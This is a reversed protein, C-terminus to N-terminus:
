AVGVRQGRERALQIPRGSRGPTLNRAETPALRYGVGRICVVELGCPQTELKKRLRRLYHKVNDTGATEGWVEVRLDALSVPQGIHNSLCALLRRETATLSMPLVTPWLSAEPGERPPFRRILAIVRATLLRHSDRRRVYVDAGSALAAIESPDGDDGIVIIPADSVRRLVAILDGAQLPPMEEAVIILDPGSELVQLLGEVSGSAQLISFGAAALASATRRRQVEDADILALQPM